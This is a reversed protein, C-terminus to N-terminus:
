TKNRSPTLHPSSPFVGWLCLIYTRPAPLRSSLQPTAMRLASHECLPLQFWLHPAARNYSGFWAGFGYKNKSSGRSHPWRAKTTKAESGAQSYWIVRVWSLIWCSCTIQTELFMKIADKRQKCLARWFIVEMNAWSKPHMCKRSADMVTHKILAMMVRAEIAWIQISNFFMAFNNSWCRVRQCLSPNSTESFVTNNPSTIDAKSLYASLRTLCSVPHPTKSNTDVESRSVSRQSHLLNM